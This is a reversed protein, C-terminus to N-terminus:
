KPAPFRKLARIVRRRWDNIGIFKPTLGFMRNVTDDSIAPLFRGHLHRLEVDVMLEWGILYDRCFELSYALFTQRLQQVDPIDAARLALNVKQRIAPDTFVAPNCGYFPKLWAELVWQIPITRVCQMMMGLQATPRQSCVTIHDGPDFQCWQLRTVEAPRLGAFLPLVLHLVVLPDECSRLLTAVQDPNLIKASTILAPSIPNANLNTLM